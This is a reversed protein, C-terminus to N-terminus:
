INSIYVVLFKSLVLLSGFAFNAIRKRYFQSRHLTKVLCLFKSNKMFVRFSREMCFIGHILVNNKWMKCRKELNWLKLSLLLFFIKFQIPGRISLVLSNILFIKLSCSCLWIIKALYYDIEIKLRSLVQNCLVIFYLNSMIKWILAAWFM